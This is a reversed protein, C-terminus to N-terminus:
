VARRDSTLLGVTSVVSIGDKHPAVPGGETTVFSSSVSAQNIPIDFGGASQDGLREALGFLFSGGGTLTVSKLGREEQGVGEENVARLYHTVFDGLDSVLSQAQRNSAAIAKLTIPNDPDDKALLALTRKVEEPDADRGGVQKSLREIDTAIARTVSDGASGAVTEVARLNGNVHLLMTTFTDGIDVIMDVVRRDERVPLSTARLMGLATLDMGILELGADEVVNALAQPEAKPVAIVLMLIQRDARGAGITDRVTRERLVFHHITTNKADATNPLIKQQAVWDPHAAEALDKPHYYPIWKVGSQVHRSDTGLIVNKTQFGERRWLERLAETLAGPMHVGNSRLAGQPTKISAIKEVVATRRGQPADDVLGQVAIINSAGINLAVVRYNGAMEVEALGGCM